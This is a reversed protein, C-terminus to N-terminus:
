GGLDFARDFPTGAAVSTMLTKLAEARLHGEAFRRMWKDVEDRAACYTERTKGSTELHRQWRRKTSLSRVPITEDRVREDCPPENAFYTATGENFWTPLGDYPIWTKMEAHVLEHTLIRATGAVPGTVVVTSPAISGDDLLVEASAFGLDESAAASAPAGLKMKCAASRCFFVLPSARVTEFAAVLNRSAVAHAERLESVQADDLGEEVYVDDCISVM